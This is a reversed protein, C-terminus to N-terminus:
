KKRPRGKKAQAGHWIANITVHNRRFRYLAIYPTGATVLERVGTAPGARGMFPFYRLLEVGAVIRAGLREAAVPKDNAICARIEELRKRAL